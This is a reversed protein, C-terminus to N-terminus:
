RNRARFRRFRHSAATLVARLSGSAVYAAGLLLVSVVFAARALLTGDYLGFDSLMWMANMLAWAAMAGTIARTGVDPRVFGIAAISGGCASAAFVLSFAVSGEMWAFDMLLWAVSALLELHEGFHQRTEEDM